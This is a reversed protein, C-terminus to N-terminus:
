KLKDVIIKNIEHLDLPMILYDYKDHNSNIKAYLDSTLVIIQPLNPRIDELTTLLQYDNKEFIESNIFIMDYIKEKVLNICKSDSNCSEVNIEYLSLSQKLLKINIFNDDVILVKKDKCNCAISNNMLNTINGVPNQNKVSLNVLISYGINNLGKNILSVNSNIIKSYIKAIYLEILSRNKLSYDNNSFDYYKYEDEKIVSGVSTIYFYLYYNNNYNYNQVNINITGNDMCDIINLILNLIIKSIKSYDGNLMSPINEDIGINIKIKNSDNNNNILNILNLIFSKFEFDSNVMTENEKEINSLDLINNILNLLKYSSSRIENIDNKTVNIDVLGEKIIADSFGSIVTMPNRMTYSMNTLFETKEKNAKEAELRQEDHIKLIINDQNELAFYLALLLLTFYFSYINLNNHTLYLYISTFIIFLIVFFLSFKQKKTIPCYKSFVFLILCFICIFEVIYLPYLVSGGFIYLNSNYDYFEIPLIITAILSAIAMVIIGIIIMKSKSENNNNINRVLQVLLYYVFFCSFLLIMILYLKCSIISILSNKESASLCSVLFGECAIIFINMYLMILFLKYERNKYKKKSVHMILVLITLLFACLSFSISALFKYM